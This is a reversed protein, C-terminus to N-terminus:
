TTGVPRCNTRHHSALDAAVDLWLDGGPRVRSAPGLAETVWKAVLLSDPEGTEVIVADVKHLGLFTRLDEVRRPDVTGPMTPGYVFVREGRAVNAFGAARTVVGAYRTQPTARVKVYDGDAEAVFFEGVVRNVSEVVGTVAPHGRGTPPAASGAVVIRTANVFEVTPALYPLLPVPVTGHALPDALMAEVNYPALASPLLTAGGDPGRRLAYGGILTFRLAALAQWLMPEDTSPTTYPYTLVVSGPPIASLNQSSEGPTPSTPASAYPWRPLLAAVTALALVVIVAAAVRQRLVRRQRRPERGAVVDTRRAELWAAIGIAIALAVFFTVFLALRSPLVDDVFPLRRLAKFPLEFPLHVTHRDFRLHNGLSLLFAVLTMLAAFRMWPRRWWRVVCLALLLLLPISLYSGNEDVNGAGAVLASGIAALRGPAVLEATTPVVPSLVDVNFIDHAGQSPGLYHLPGHTMAYVPYALLAACLVGGIVLGVAAHPARAVVSRPHTVALIVLGIVSFIATSAFIESSIFYQATGLCGLLLGWWVASHEQRVVLEYAVYFILPPLPVFSLNLHVSAQSLMYPSFGYLLGGLFAAPTSRLSRQLVFFMAFASAPFALWRLLNESAVPSVALTLPATLLGLLPMGTNQALDVGVPYNILNTAFLNHWHVLAYPTWALFWATQIVDKNGGCACTAIRTPDGPWVPLNALAGILAYVVAATLFPHRRLRDILARARPGPGRGV